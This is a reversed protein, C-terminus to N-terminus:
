QSTITFPIKTIIGKPTTVSLVFTGSPASSPCASGTSVNFLHQTGGAASTSLVTDNMIAISSLTSGIGVTNNTIALKTGAPMPNNNQDYLWFSYTTTGCAGRFTTTNNVGNVLTVSATSGSLVIVANRRVHARGWKGDCTSDKSLANAYNGTTKVGACASTAGYPIFQENGTWSSSEDADIFIDGLDSFPEGLDYVNNGNTDIFSEEGLSYALISVRGKTVKGTPESDSRPRKESSVFSVSCTGSSTVCSSPSLQAGESIFNIVTGDPVPNGLRDSAIISVSTTTGDYEWGEINYAGVSLSFFDQSPLGTTITLKNSQSTLTSKDALTAVAKVFVPTPNTGATVTVSVSGDSASTKTVSGSSGDLLIGGTRTDLDFLVTQGSVAAGSQDVVKFTVTSVEVLGTGKLYITAPSSSVYQLNAAKPSAVDLSGSKSIGQASATITDTGSCGKDTYTATAVGGVTLASSVLTAKGSAACGSSFNVSVPTATPIGDVNVTVSISTTGYAAISSNAITFGTLTVVGASVSYNSTGQVSSTGVSASATITGAGQASISAASM